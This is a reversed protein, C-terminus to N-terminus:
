DLERALISQLKRTMSGIKYHNRDLAIIPWIGILSNCVFAESAESLVSPAFRGEVVRIDERQLLSIIHDRMVGKVGCRDILPTQLEGTASNLWFLNSMTGEVVFGESDLMIGEAINPDHWENRAMVQDLRNLHKLQALAPNLPLRYNCLRTAIGRDARDNNIVRDTLTVVRTASVEQPPMYGRIGDGRTVILKLTQDGEFPLLALDSEIASEIGEPFGLRELSSRMRSLHQSLLQPRGDVVAITEFVGDGYCFGRDAVKIQDTSIGNVWAAQM